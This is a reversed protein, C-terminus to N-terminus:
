DDRLKSLDDLFMRPSRGKTVRDLVFSDLLGLGTEATVEALKSAALSVLAGAGAGIAAGAQEGVIAGLGVGVAAFAVTKVFKRPASDLLGKRESIANLYDKVMDTDPSEGATKELWERFFKANATNRIEALRTLPEQIEGFLTRM